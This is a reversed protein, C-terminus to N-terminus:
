VEIIEQFEEPTYFVKAKAFYLEKGKCKELITRMQKFDTEMEIREDDRTPNLKCWNIKTRFYIGSQAKYWRVLGDGYNNQCLLTAKFINYYKGNLVLNQNM